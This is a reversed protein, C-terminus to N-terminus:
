STFDGNYCIVIEFAVEPKIELNAVVDFDGQIANLQDVPIKLILWQWDLWLSGYIHM